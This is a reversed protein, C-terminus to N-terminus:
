TAAAGCAARDSAGLRVTIATCFASRECEQQCDDLSRAMFNELSSCGSAGVGCAQPLSLPFPAFLRGANPADHTSTIQKLCPPTSRAQRRVDHSARPLTGRRRRAGANRALVAGHSSGSQVLLAVLRRVHHGGM